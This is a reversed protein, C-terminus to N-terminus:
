LNGASFARRPQRQQQQESCDDRRREDCAGVEALRAVEAVAGVIEADVVAIEVEGDRSVGVTRECELSPGTRVEGIQWCPRWDERQEEASM